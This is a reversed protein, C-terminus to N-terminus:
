AAVDSRAGVLHFADELGLQAIREMLADRAGGDDGVMVCRARPFVRRVDDLVDPLLLVGKVLSLSGVFLIVPADEEIGLLARRTRPLLRPALPVDVGNYIMEIREPDLWRALDERVCRSVAVN